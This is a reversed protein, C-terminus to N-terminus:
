DGRRRRPPLPAYSLPPLLQTVDAGASAIEGANNLLHDQVAEAIRPEDRAGLAEIIPLHQAPVDATRAYVVDVLLLAARVHNTLTEFASVLYDNGSATCLRRHFALDAAILAQGGGTAAAREMDDVLGRLEDLPPDRRAALRAAVPEIGLRLNFIDVLDGVSFERVFTGYRPREYLLGEEVLRSLAERVPGRSIGLDSALRAEVLREGSRLRGATISDRISQYALTALSEAKLPPLVAPRPSSSV